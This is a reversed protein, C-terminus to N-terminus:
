IIVASCVYAIVIYDESVLIGLSLLEPRVYHPEPFSDRFKVFCCTGDLLSVDQNYDPCAQSYIRSGPQYMVGGRPALNVKYIRFIHGGAGFERVDLLFGRHSHLLQLLHKDSSLDSLLM